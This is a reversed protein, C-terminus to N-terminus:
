DMCHYIADPVSYVVRSATRFVTLAHAAQVVDLLQIIGKAHEDDIDFALTPM